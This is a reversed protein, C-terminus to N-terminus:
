PCINYVFNNYKWKRASETMKHEAELTKLMEEISPEWEKEFEIQEKLEEKSPWLVGPDFGSKRGYKGYLKRKLDIPQFMETYWDPKEPPNMVSKMRDRYKKPMRSIDRAATEEDNEVNLSSDQDGEATSDSSFCRYIYASEKMQSLHVCARRMFNIDWKLFKIVAHAM